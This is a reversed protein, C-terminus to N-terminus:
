CYNSSYSYWTGCHTKCDGSVSCTRGFCIGNIYKYEMWSDPPCGADADAAPLLVEIARTVRRTVSQLM